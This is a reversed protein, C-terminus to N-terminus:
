ARSLSLRTTSLVYRVTHIWGKGDVHSCGPTNPYRECNPVDLEWPSGILLASGVVEGLTLKTHYSEVYPQVWLRYKSNPPPPSPPNTSLSRNRRVVCPSHPPVYQHFVLPQDPWPIDQNADLLSWMHHCSWQGGQYHRVDCTPNKHALIDSFPWPRCKDAGFAVSGTGIDVDQEQAHYVLTGSAKGFPKPTDPCVCAGPTHSPLLTLSSPTKEKHYGYTKGSGVANIFPITTESLSFTYYDNSSGKMGRSLVVTRKQGHVSSSVIHVSSDLLAGADHNGLKRETVQGNGDVVITWPEDDMSTAGFGVGFWVDSPGTVTMVATQDAETLDISVDILSRTSGVLRTKTANGGCSATANTLTNFFVEITLAPSSSVSVSCGAPRTADSGTRNEFRQDGTRLTAAAAHFCEQFTLIKQDCGVGSNKVSYEGDIVKVLRTTMPCELLGSYTANRPALASAPYPGPVFAVPGATFNMFDRNWTDIQMPTIQFETPSDIVLAYGPAFGHYTKRYEGGNASSFSVHYNSANAENKRVLYQKQDVAIAGHGLTRKLENVRPDDNGNLHVAEFRAASGIIQSVYHHNYSVSIPVSIDEDSTKGKVVQDIEWGIIAMSRNAYKQVMEEPLATPALPSWWVQSYLTTMPPSYAEFMEAGGPYDAYRKPFLGPTGGPTSSFVYEGNMNDATSPEFNPGFNPIDHRAVVRAICLVTPLLLTFMAVLHSKNRGIWM